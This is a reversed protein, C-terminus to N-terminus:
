ARPVKVGVVIVRSRWMARPGYIASIRLETYTASYHYSTMDRDSQSTSTRSHSRLTNPFSVRVLSLVLWGVALLLSFRVLVGGLRPM